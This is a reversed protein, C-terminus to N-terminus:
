CCKHRRVSGFLLGFGADYVWLPFQSEADFPSGLESDVVKECKEHNEYKEDSEVRLSELGGGICMLMVKSTSLQLALTTFGFHSSRNRM